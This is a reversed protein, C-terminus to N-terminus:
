TPELVQVVRAVPLRPRLIMGTRTLTVRLPEQYPQWKIEENQGIFPRL